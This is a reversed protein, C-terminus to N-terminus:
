FRSLLGHNFETEIDILDADDEPEPLIEVGNHQHTADMTNGADPLHNEREVTGGSIGQDDMRFLRTPAHEPPKKTKTIIVAELQKRREKAYGDVTAVYKAYLEHLEHDRQTREVRARQPRPKPVAECILRDDGRLYIYAAIMDGDNDDLWYVDIPQGEVQKMLNILDDGLAIEGDMGLLYEGNNLRINGVNVSTETHFGVHRMFRRYDTPQLDPNQNDLFYEWRSQGKHDPNPHPSNNFDEIKSLAMKVIEDYALKVKDAKPSPQNAESRAFPRGQWGAEMKEFEYRLVKNVDSEIIKGRANNAEIRVYQFMNGERLFTNKFSSNLASECELEAPLKVGWEHYNRVLQRYFDMILGEKTRGSVWCTIMQSAVDEGLYFWVRQNDGYKFPPQRDDISLLSGAYKPREFSFAPKYMGMLRQRDASRVAHTAVRNEWSKLYNYVTSKSLKSFMAPDYIEGTKSNVVDLYGSLFADYQRHVEAYTPKYSPERFINNLLEITEDTAVQANRNGLNKHVLSIYGERQYENYKEAFRRPNAPLNHQVGYRNHLFPNYLEADKALSDWIGMLTGSLNRRERERKPRLLGVANLVSANTIYTEMVEDKLSLGNSYTYDGYFKVADQDTTYYLDLIHDPVRPDKLQERIRRPLTDFDVLLERGNGGVMVRRIGHGRKEDRKLKMRLADYTPWHEPVLEELTVVVKDQYFHPM